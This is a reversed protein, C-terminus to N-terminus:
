MKQVAAYMSIMDGISELPMDRSREDIGWRCQHDGCNGSEEDDTNVLRRSEVIDNDHDFDRDNDDQQSPCRTRRCV